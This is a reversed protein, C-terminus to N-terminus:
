CLPCSRGHIIGFCVPGGDFILGGGVEPIGGLAELGVTV